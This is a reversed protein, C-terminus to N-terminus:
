LPNKEEVIESVFISSAVATYFFDPDENIGRGMTSVKLDYNELAEKLNMECGNVMLIDHKIDLDYESIQDSIKEMKESSYDDTIPVVCGSNSLEGLVTLSHHSIGYHRERKDAFSVRPIVIPTGGLKQVSDIINAQEIGSFGYKTGTGAIGPGMGVFVVDAKLIEKAAILGTYINMCELDGGFANGITIVSDIIDKEKLERVTNSFWLPLAAGDTMIYIIKIDERLYKLSAAFPSLMSHLNGCVVPIEELGKFSDFVEKYKPDEEAMNVKLQVPTYRLKMMHGAKDQTGENDKMKSIVFHYGGTGLNLEVATTNLLVEDGVEVKGSLPIYNIAKSEKGEIVVILEQIEKTEKKVEQVKGLKRSLM